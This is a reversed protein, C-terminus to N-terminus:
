LPLRQGFIWRQSVCCCCLGRNTTRELCIAAACTQLGVVQFTSSPPAPTCSRRCSVRDWFYSAYLLAWSIAWHMLLSTRDVCLGPNSDGADMGFASYPQICQDRYCWSQHASVSGSLKWALWDLHNERFLHHIWAISYLFLCGVSHESKWKHVYAHHVSYCLVGSVCCMGHLTSPLNLNGGGTEETTYLSSKFSLEHTVKHTTNNYMCHIVFASSCQYFFNIYTNLFSECSLYYDKRRRHNGKLWFALPHDLWTELQRIVM